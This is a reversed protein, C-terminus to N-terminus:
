AVSEYSVSGSDLLGKLIQLAGALIDRDPVVSLGIRVSHTMRESRVSRYEDEGDIRIRHNRAALQFSPSTWPEPLNVWRFPMAAAPGSTTVGFIADFLASRVSIEAKVDQRITDAEGSLVLRAATEMGLFSRSGSLMSHAVNTRVVQGRPCAVWGARLGAAVSKSLGGVCFTREPALAAFPPTPDGTLAGYVHDEVITLNHRRAVAVIAERRQLSMQCATPNNASPMLFLLRPHQRAACRDLEDPLMGEGDMPVTLPLRGIMSAARAVASYSLEELVIRDGPHTVAGLIAQIGADVGTTPVVDESRPRWGGASLWTAGAERVHEPVDRVYDIVRQPEDAVVGAIVAAIAGAQGVDPASTSDLRLFPEEAQRGPLKEPARGRIPMDRLAAAGDRVYTGRGVEGATLGRERAVQYARSITGLTVGLDYAIDRQPPLKDGPKLVGEVIAREIADALRLYFPADGNEPVDFRITM